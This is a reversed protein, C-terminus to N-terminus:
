YDWSFITKITKRFDRVNIIKGKKISSSVKDVSPKLKKNKSM